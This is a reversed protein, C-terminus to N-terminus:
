QWCAVFTLGDAVDLIFLPFVPTYHQRDEMIQSCLRLRHSFKHHAAKPRHQTRQTVDAPPECRHIARTFKLGLVDVLVGSGAVQSTCRLERVMDGSQQQHCRDLSLVLYPESQSALAM